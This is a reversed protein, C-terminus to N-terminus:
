RRRRISRFVIMSVAALELILGAYLTRLGSTVENIMMWVGLIIVVVGIVALATPMRVM